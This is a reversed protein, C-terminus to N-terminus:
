KELEKQLGRKLAETPGFGLKGQVEAILGDLNARAVEMLQDSTDIGIEASRFLQAHQALNFSPSLASLLDELSSHKVQVKVDEDESDLSVFEDSNFQPEHKPKPRTEVEPGRQRKSPRPTESGQNRPSNPSDDLIQGVSTSTLGGQTTELSDSESEARMRKMVQALTGSASPLYKSNANLKQSKGHNHISDM